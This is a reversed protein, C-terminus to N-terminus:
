PAMHAKVTKVMWDVYARQNAATKLYESLRKKTHQPVHIIELNGYHAKPVKVHQRWPCIQSVGDIDATADLLITGPRVILKSQWGVFRVVQASPAAFACGATLARAFGFVQDLGPIEAKHDRLIYAAEGRMFWQLQGVLEKTMHDNPRTI